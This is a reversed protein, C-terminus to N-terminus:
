RSCTSGICSWRTGAARSFPWGAWLVVPTALVFQVWHSAQAPPLMAIHTFNGGMELALVPITLVLGIWFRRTMDVLEANPGTETTATVPELAMGCIPCHGPGAQRVDPHMPCTYITGEQAPAAKQPTTAVYRGPDAEFKERCHASCFCYAHAAYEARHRAMRPDVEMGCVPDKVSEALSRLGDETHPGQPRHHHGAERGSGSAPQPHDHADGDGGCAAHERASRDLAPKAAETKDSGGHRHHKDDNM